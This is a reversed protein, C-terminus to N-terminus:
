MCQLRIHGTATASQVKNKFKFRWYSSPQIMQIMRKKAKLLADDVVHTPRRLQFLPEGILRNLLSQSRTEPRVVYVAVGGEIQVDILVVVVPGGADGGGREAHNVQVPNLIAVAPTM